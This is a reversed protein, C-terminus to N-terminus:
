EVNGPDSAPRDLETLLPNINRGDERARDIHAPPLDLFLPMLQADSRGDFRKIDLSVRCTQRLDDRVQQVVRRLEGVGAAPEPKRRLLFPVVRDDSDPVRANSDRAVDERADELHEGLGSRGHFARVAAEPHSEREHIAQDLQMAAADRRGAAARSGAALERDAQWNRFRATPRGGSANRDSRARTGRTAPDQHDVVVDIRDITERYQQPDHTMLDLRGTVALFAQLDGLFEMSLDRDQVDAQGLDVTVVEGLTQAPLWPRLVQHQDREGAPSQVLMALARGLRSEIMMEGLRHIQIRQLHNQSCRCGAFRLVFEGSASGRRANDQKSWSGYWWRWLVAQLLARGREATKQRARAWRRPM